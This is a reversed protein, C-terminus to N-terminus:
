AVSHAHTTSCYSSTQLAASKYEDIASRRQACAHSATDTFSCAALTPCGIPNTNHAVLVRRGILATCQDDTELSPCPAYTYGVPPTEEADGCAWLNDITDDEEDSEEM